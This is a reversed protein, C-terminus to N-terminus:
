CRAAVIAERVAADITAPSYLSSLEAALADAYLGVAFTRDMGSEDAARFVDCIDRRTIRRLDEVRPGLTTTTRRTTTSTTTEPQDASTRAQTTSPACVWSGPGPAGEVPKCARGSEMARQVWHPLLTTTTPTSRTTTRPTANDSDPAVLALAVVAAVAVIIVAAVRVRRSITWATGTDDDTNTM